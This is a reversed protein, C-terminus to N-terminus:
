ITEILEQHQLNWMRQYYGGRAMLSKHDGREIVWGDRLVLIEDMRDMGVLRHTVILLTQNQTADFITKILEWETVADLNVTPEDLILIPADRLFARAILLRQREGGSLQTGREGINTDYGEPLSQLFEHIQAKEAARFIESRTADPKAILLNELVSANFLYSDQGVVGLVGRWEYPDFQRIDEGEVEIRGRELEWFRLLLNVLTTKGSGSPGVVAMVKGYPLSFSLDCLAAQIQNDSKVNRSQNTYNLRPPYQFTLLEAELNLNGPLPLPDLPEQVAPAASVVQDLRDAAALNGELQQAAQPIAMVAEFSSLVALVVVALNVGALQKENVMPIALVLVTWMCLDRALQSMGIQTGTIRAMSMQLRGRRESFTIVKGLQDNERGYAILDALGHIGEVLTSNLYGRQIIM